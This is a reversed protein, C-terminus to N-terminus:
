LRIPTYINQISCMTAKNVNGGANNTVIGNCMIALLYIIDSAGGGASVGPTNVMPVGMSIIPAEAHTFWGM